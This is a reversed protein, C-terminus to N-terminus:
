RRSRFWDRVSDVLVDTIATIVSRGPPQKARGGGPGGGAGGGSGGGAGAGPGGGAGAGPGGGAGSGPGGEGSIPGPAGEALVVISWAAADYTGQVVNGRELSWCNFGGEFFHATDIIRRWSVSSPGQPVVFAVPQDAMNILLLFDAAGVSAADIWLRVARDGDTPAEAQDPQFFVYSVDTGGLEADGYSRQRLGPHDRRLAGLFSAFVLQPNVGSPSDARGFADRYRVTALAAGQPADVAGAGDPVVPVSTPANTALASWNNWMGITNLNYPNNNGNQTRGYEDGSCVMPVGRAFYLAVWFNRLRQRILAQDGGSGWSDNSDSGGDSPGFPWAQSNDKHDYAVLDLMAFGDHATIFNISRQPGGQDAFNRYDGNMVEMFAGANGDGKLYRRVADRYRGNWEAWGDPFNGVEYGWLDWAEAIVEINRAQALDRIETLLPHDRYFRRQGAWDERAQAMPARGLVPALDFRFGDVGMADCWYELSDTVLARTIASSMDTQNGCGTAGDVLQDADTLVYYETTAFGGFGTFGVTDLDGWNGGEGTHNYVVDLYVEIGHEHFTRVMEKFERTPGGPTKDFAYQRNPAFYGLTMYAWHNSPGTTSLESGNSEQVPMLEIANCGLAKVYPALHAAGAYTGQLPEPVDTVASFGPLNAVYTGLRRASPHLTLNRVHAEYVITSEAPVAPKTGTTTADSVVIAKPAYAATDWERVPRGRYDRPGWGFVGGDAGAAVVDPSAPSHSIERAYPDTLVKNPNFRQGRPGRDAVFGASSNGPAWAPDLNWGPGWVRYGYHAGPGLGAVRARWVGDAGRALDIAALAAVGTPRAYVELLVRTAEPAAVAFTVTAGERDVHAGLPWAAGAWSDPDRPTPFAALPRLFNM